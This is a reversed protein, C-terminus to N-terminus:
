TYKKGWSEKHLTRSRSWQNCAKHLVTWSPTTTRWWKEPKVEGKSMGPVGNRWGVSLRWVSTYRQLVPNRCWPTSLCWCFPFLHSNLFIRMKVAGSQSCQLQAVVAQAQYVLRLLNLYAQTRTLWLFDSHCLRLCQRLDPEKVMM